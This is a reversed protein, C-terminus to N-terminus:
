LGADTAYAVLVVIIGGFLGLGGGVWAMFTRWPDIAPVLSEVSGTFLVVVMGRLIVGVVFGTVIGVPGALLASFAVVIKDARTSSVDTQNPCDRTTQEDSSVSMM